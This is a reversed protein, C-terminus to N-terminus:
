KMTIYSSHLILYTINLVIPQVKPFFLALNIDLQCMFIYGMHIFLKFTFIEETVM